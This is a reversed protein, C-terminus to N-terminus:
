EDPPTRGSLFRAIARALITTAQMLLEVPVREDVGNAGSLRVDAEGAGYMVTAINANSYWRADTYLTACNSAIQRGFAAFAQEQLITVFAEQSASPRMPEALRVFEYGIDCATLRRSADIVGLLGQRAAAMSESPAVRRDIWIEVQRPAMGFVTGGVARTVNLSPAPGRSDESRLSDALDYLGCCFRTAARMADEAPPLQSQHCATGTIGVKMQICGHHAVTVADTFGPFVALRPRIDLSNLLYGAGLDGGSGEDSTVALALSIGDTDALSRWAAEAAYVFTGVDSKSVAAGRGYLLGAEITAGFPDRSWGDGAPSTDIHVCLLIDPRTSRKGLWGIVIPLVQGTEDVPSHSEVDFGAEALASCASRAADACQGPQHTPQRVLRTVLALIREGREAVQADIRHM